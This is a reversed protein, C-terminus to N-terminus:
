LHDLIRMQQKIVEVNILQDEAVVIRFKRPETEGQKSNKIVDASCSSRLSPSFSSSKKNSEHLM